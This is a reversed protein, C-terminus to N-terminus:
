ANSQNCYRQGGDHKCIMLQQDHQNDYDQNEQSIFDNGNAHKTVNKTKSLM